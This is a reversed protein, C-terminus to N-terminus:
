LTQNRSSVSSRHSTEPMAAELTPASASERPKELTSLAKHDSFCHSCPMPMLVFAMKYAMLYLQVWVCASFSYKVAVRTHDREEKKKQHKGSKAVLSHQKQISTLTCTSLMLPCICSCRVPNSHLKCM